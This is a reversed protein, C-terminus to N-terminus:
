AARKIRKIECATKSAQALDHVKQLRLWFDATSDFAQEFRIALDATIPAECACVATLASEETPLLTATDGTTM